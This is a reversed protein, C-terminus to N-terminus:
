AAEPLGAAWAARSAAVEVRLQASREADTPLSKILRAGQQNPKIGRRSLSRELAERGGGVYAVGKRVGSPIVRLVIMQLEDKALVHTENIAGLTEYKQTL